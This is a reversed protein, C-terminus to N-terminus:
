RSRGTARIYRAKDHAQNRAPPAAAGGNRIRRSLTAVVNDHAKVARGLHVSGTSCGRRLCQTPHLDRDSRARGARIENFDRISRRPRIRALRNYLNEYADWTCDKSSDAIV